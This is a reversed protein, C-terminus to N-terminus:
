RGYDTKTYNVKIEKFGEAFEEVIEAKIGNRIKNLRRVELALKGVKELPPLKNKDRGISQEITWLDGNVKYLRTVFNRIKPNNFDIEKKYTELEKNVDEKTREKKLLTITYRDIIESMPMKIM